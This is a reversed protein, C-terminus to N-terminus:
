SMAEAHKALYRETAAEATDSPWVFVFRARKGLAQIAVAEIGHGIRRLTHRTVMRFRPLPSSRRQPGAYVTAAPDRACASSAAAYARVELAKVNKFSRKDGQRRSRRRDLRGVDGHAPGPGNRVNAPRKFNGAALKQKPSKM